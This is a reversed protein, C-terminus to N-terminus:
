FATELAELYLAGAREVGFSAARVAADPPCADNLAADIAQALASANGVPSLRGWKGGELIEFPGSPCDTSVVRAGCAMAQILVGPLGEFRSSLVFVDCARMFAFPNKEFGPFSVREAVGLEQARAALAARREGEGLVILRAKPTQILSFAELLTEFDKQASLRGAALVVPPRSSGQAVLWAHRPTQRAQALLEESVIPNPLVRIAGVDLRAVRALDDAVGQSVATVLDARPYFARMASRMLWRGLPSLGALDCRPTNRESLVLRADVGSLARALVSVVNAHAMASLVARPRERRMYACLAPLAFAVRRAKLDVVRVNSPVSDCYPGQAQALVLDVSRGKRAFYDALSVMVREAGGGRLSPIFVAIRRQSATAM